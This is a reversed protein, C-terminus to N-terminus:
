PVQQGVNFVSVFGVVSLSCNVLDFAGVALSGVNILSASSPTFPTSSAVFISFKLRFGVFSHFKLRCGVHAGGGGEGM